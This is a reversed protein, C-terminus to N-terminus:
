NARFLRELEKTAKEVTRKADDLAKRSQEVEASISRTRRDASEAAATTKKFRQEAERRQKEADKQEAQAKEQALELSQIRTRAEALSKKADQVAIKAAAIRTQRTEEVRNAEGSKQRIKTAATASKNAVTSVRVPEETRRTAGVGPMFSALSEFGPPDVDKTLRGPIAGDPLFEYASIAELTTTIRRIMDLTPNHGADHLVTTALDSLIALADRRDDLADRMDAVKAAQRSTQAKRFRQGAVILQDFEARHHWYLQNVTWASVSPKTLAKVSEAEAAHGDKKLRTALSKRADIFDAMPLRFLDDVENEIGHGMGSNKAMLRENERVKLNLGLRTVSRRVM